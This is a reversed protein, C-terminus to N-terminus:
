GFNVIALVICATIGLGMIALWLRWTSRDPGGIAGLYELILDILMPHAISHHWGAYRLHHRPGRDIHRNTAASGDSGVM